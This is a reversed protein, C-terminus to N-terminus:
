ALHGRQHLLPFLAGALMVLALPGAFGSLYGWLYGWTGGIVPGLLSGALAVVAVEILVLLYWRWFTNM